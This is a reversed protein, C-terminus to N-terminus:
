KAPLDKEVLEKLHVLGPQIVEPDLITGKRPMATPDPADPGTVRPDPRLSQFFRIFLSKGGPLPEVTFNAVSGINPIPNGDPGLRQSVAVWQHGPVLGVVTYRNQRHKGDPNTPVITETVSDGIKQPQDAPGGKFVDWGLMMPFWHAMNKPTTVWAFVKDAPRDIVIHNEVFRANLDDAVPSVYLPDSAQAAAGGASAIMGACLASIALVRVGSKGSM